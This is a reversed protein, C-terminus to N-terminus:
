GAEGRSPAPRPSSFAAAARRVAYARPAVDPGGLLFRGDGDPARWAERGYNFFFTLDGRRRLRVDPPLEFISLGARQAVFRILSALAEADPWFAAYYRRDAGVLAPEGDAFRAHVEGAAELRETWREAAGAIAGSLPARVGPRLSSVEIVRAKLASALPGPPLNAPIAYNRTKSGARAGFLVVGDAEAFAREAADTVIPLCPALVLKYGKLEAGPPVIDVDQGLRRAAEYWRYLAEFPDFSAGQRQIDITWVGEYDFVLAVPARGIAPLEGLAALDAAAQAAERGGPSLEHSHPLNLGAHMQEQAFPAQRWRFYSVVEAGHAHAEIAWLKVMGPAPAPNYPAWNVPGPQQEMVWFRGRGVSRFLDHHFPAMDPHATDSWRAHEAETFPFRDTFGIPYSDWRPSISM